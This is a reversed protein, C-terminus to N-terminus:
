FKFESSLWVRNKMIEGESNKSNSDTNSKHLPNAWKLDLLFRESIETKFGIGWGELVENNEINSAINDTIVFNRSAGGDYFFTISSFIKDKYNRFLFEAELLASVGESGTVEGLPFARISNFGGLTLKESDDLNKDSTQYSTNLSVRFGSSVRAILSAEINAKIFDGAAGSAGLLNDAELLDVNKSLDLNGATAKIILNAFIPSPTKPNPKLILGFSAKNVSKNAIENGVSQSKINNFELSTVFDLHNYSNRKLSKNLDLTYKSIRGGTSPTTKFKDGLEYEVANLALKGRIGNRGIPFGYGMDYSFFKDEPKVSSLTKINILDGIGTPNNFNLKYNALYSGTYKHGHNNIGFSGTILNEEDVTLGITTTGPAKGKKFSISSYNVGPVENLNQISKNIKQLNVGGQTISEFYSKAIQKKLRTDKPFIEIPNDFDLTGKEIELQLVGNVIEQEPIFVQTLIFGADRFYKEIEQALKFIEEIELNRKIYKEEINRIKELESSTLDGNITLKKIYISKEQKEEALVQFGDAYFFGIKM